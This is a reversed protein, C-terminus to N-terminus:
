HHLCYSSSFKKVDHDNGMVIDNEHQYACKLNEKLM